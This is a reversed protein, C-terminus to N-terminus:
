IRDDRLTITFMSLFRLTKAKGHTSSAQRKTNPLRTLSATACPLRLSCIPQATEVHYSANSHWVKIKSAQVAAAQYLIKNKYMGVRLAEGTLTFINKTCLRRHPHIFLLFYSSKFIFVHNILLQPYYFYASRLILNPLLLTPPNSVAVGIERGVASGFVREEESATLRRPTPVSFRSGSWLLIYWRLQRVLTSFWFHYEREWESTADRMAPQFLEIEADSAIEEALHLADYVEFPVTALDV